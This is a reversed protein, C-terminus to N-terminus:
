KKFRLKNRRGGSGSKPQPEICETAEGMVYKAKQRRFWLTRKTQNNKRERDKYM